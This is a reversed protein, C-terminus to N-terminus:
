FRILYKDDNGYFDAKKQQRLLFDNSLVVFLWAWQIEERNYAMKYQSRIRTSAIYDKQAACRNTYSRKANRHQDVRNQETDGSEMARVQQFHRRM